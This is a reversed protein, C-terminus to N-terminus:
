NPKEPEAAAVHAAHEAGGVPVAETYANLFDPPGSAMARLTGQLTQNALFLSDATFKSAHTSCLHLESIVIECATMTPRLQDPVIIKPCHTGQAFCGKRMCQM